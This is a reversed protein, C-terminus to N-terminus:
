SSLAVFAIVAVVLGGAVLAAFVIIIKAVRRQEAERRAHAAAIRQIYEQEQARLAAMRERSSAETEEKISAARERQSALTDDFRNTHRALVQDVIDLPQGCDACDVVEIWNRAGCQPCAQALPANCNSCGVRDVSNLTACETCVVQSRDFIEGCHSCVPYGLSADGEMGVHGCSLCTLKALM